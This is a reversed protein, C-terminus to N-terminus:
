TSWSDSTPTIMAPNMTAQRAFKDVTPESFVENVSSARPSNEIMMTLRAMAPPKIDTNCGNAARYTNIKALAEGSRAFSDSRM